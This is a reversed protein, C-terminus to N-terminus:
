KRHIDELSFSNLKEYEIPLLVDKYEEALRKAEKRKAPIYVEAAEEISDFYGLYERVGNITCRSVYGIKSNKTKPKIVNVGEPLGSVKGSYRDSLFSNVEDPLLTCYEPCYLKGTGFMDKDLEFGDIFKDLKNEAWLAFNQFNHWEDVVKCGIYAKCSAKKQEEESYCRTIMQAWKRYVVNNYNTNGGSKNPKYKGIGFYGVGVVSRFNPYYITGSKVNHAYHPRTIVGDEWLVEVDDHHHYKYVTGSVGDNNNFSFGEPIGSKPHGVVGKRLSSSQTVSTTGDKFVIGVNHADKYSCVTVEGYNNTPFVSGITILTPSPSTSLKGSIVDNYKTAKRVGNVLVTIDSDTRYRVVTCPSGDPHELIGGVSCKPVRKTYKVRGQKIHTSSTNKKFGCGFEILIKKRGNYEIVTYSEGGVAIDKYGVPYSILGERLKVM